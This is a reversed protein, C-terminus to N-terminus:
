ARASRTANPSSSPGDTSGNRTPTAVRDSSVAAASSFRTSHTTSSACQSSGAVAPASSNQARRSPASRTAMTNAARSPAQSVKSGCPSGSSTRVPRSGVRGAGEEVYVSPSAGASSTAWRSM